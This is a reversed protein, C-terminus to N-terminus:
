GKVWLYVFAAVGILVILACGCAFIKATLRLLFHIVVWLIIVGLLILLVQTLLSNDM